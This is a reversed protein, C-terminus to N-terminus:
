ASATGYLFHEGTSAVDAAFGVAAFEVELEEPRFFRKVITFAEGDLTRVHAHTPGGTVEESSRPRAPAWCDDVFAISGGPQLWGRVKTWFGAWRAPPLHSLFFGAFILEFRERQEWAFLDAEVYQVSDDDIWARNRALMTPSSDVAVLRAARPALFRTWLGNGCALKLVPGDAPLSGVFGELEGTEREWNETM